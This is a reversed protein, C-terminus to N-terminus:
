GRIRRPASPGNSTPSARRASARDRPPLRRPPSFEANASAYSFARGRRGINRSALRRRAPWDAPERRFAVSDGAAGAACGLAAAPLRPKPEAPGTRPRTEVHATVGSLGRFYLKWGLDTYRTATQGM